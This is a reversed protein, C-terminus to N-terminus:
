YVVTPRIFITLKSKRNGASRSGFIWKLVPIRAILPLGRGSRTAEKEELGGLMVMEKNRVRVMSKFKREVTGPPATNSIRDTFDSQNVEIDLTVFGESSVIPLIKLSLDANVPKYIQSTSITPNQTGIIDNRIELYYETEGISLTAEHGNLTSLQPTSRLKLMGDTELAQIGLYFGPTVNGLNFVGFGNFSNILANISGSTLNYDVSPLLGGGSEEPGNGIGATIGSTINKSRKVDVILVEITVVPVLQDLQRLFSKIEAIRPESGSLIVANLEKFETVVVDKKIADPIAVLVDTVTRNELRVLETSRLGELDRKGIVYVDSTKEYTHETGTLMRDLFEDYSADTLQATVISEPKDHLFFQVGVARSVQEILSALPMDTVQLTLRGDPAVAMQFGGGDALVGKHRGNHGKTALADSAVPELLFTGDPSKRVDLDNSFALNEMAADLPSNKLFISVRKEELGPALVVNRGSQEAIAMAVSDLRDKKLDLDIWASDSRYVVAPPRLTIPPPAAVPAIYQKLSIITGILEIDLDHNKCLYLLVDAVRANSFNNTITGPAKPDVSINLKHNMGLARVFEQVTAGNVSLEVTEDLGPQDVVASELLQSLALFRDQQAFLACTSLLLLLVCLLLRHLTHMKESM